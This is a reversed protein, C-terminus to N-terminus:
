HNRRRPTKLPASEALVVLYSVLDDLQKSSLRTGYDKPHLSHGTHKVDVLKAKEFTRWRGDKMQVTINFNDEARAVGTIREGSRLQLEVVTSTPPLGADPQTIARLISEHSIGGAYDTLDSAIYGGEGKVMHCQTCGAQGFFLDHGAAPDGSIKTASMKGQLVRLHSVVGKVSEEGLFGFSPM